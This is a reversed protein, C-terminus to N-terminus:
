FLNVILAILVSIVATIAIYKYKKLILPILNILIITIGVVFNVDVNIM